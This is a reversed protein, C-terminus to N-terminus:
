AVVKRNGSSTQSDPLCSLVKYKLQVVDTQEHHKSVEPQPDLQSCLGNILWIIRMYTIFIAELMLM